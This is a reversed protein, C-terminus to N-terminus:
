LITSTIKLSSSYPLGGVGYLLDAYNGRPQLYQQYPFILIFLLVVQPLCPFMKICITRITTLREPHSKYHIFKGLVRQVFPM